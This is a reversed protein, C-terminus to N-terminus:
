ADRAVHDRSHSTPIPPSGYALEGPLNLHDARRYEVCMQAPREPAKITQDRRFQTTYTRYDRRRVNEAWFVALEQVPDFPAQV